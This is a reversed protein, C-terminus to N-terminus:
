EAHPRPRPIHAFAVRREIELFPNRTAEIDDSNTHLFAHTIWQWQISSYLPLIQQSACATHNPAIVRAERLLDATRSLFHAEVAVDRNQDCQM